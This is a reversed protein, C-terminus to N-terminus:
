TRTYSKHVSQQSTDVAGAFPSTPSQMLENALPDDHWGVHSWPYVTKPALEHVAPVSVAAVHLHDYSLQM